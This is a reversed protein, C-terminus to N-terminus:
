ARDRREMAVRYARSTEMVVREWGFQRRVDERGTAAMARAREPDRAMEEIASALADSDGPPVLLGSRGHEVIDTIGGIGSAIVPREFRLAELLVVGLGETDGKEDVVAPLVFIDHDEYSEVLRDRSVSGLMRVRDAVGHVRATREIITAREGTGIVTLEADPFASLASLARVLVEVGKREVLRGVFLLRLPREGRLASCRVPLGDDEFAAGYPVIYVPTDTLQRVADATSTSIATVADASRATWRLFPMLRPMSGKVWNLEVSYYSCVMATRGGSGRRVAAGILAHPMPWHVHVVEPSSRGAEHGARIGAALYPPVLGAVYRRQRIRDPVTEDHTLMEWSAPAYRFRHVPIDDFAERKPGGLYAPAIVQADLGAARQRRILEVLWPTIPDEPTRPFATVVHLIRM